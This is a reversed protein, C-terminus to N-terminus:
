PTNVELDPNFWIYYAPRHTLKGLIYRTRDLGPLMTRRNGHSKLFRQIRVEVFDEAPGDLADLTAQVAEPDILDQEEIGVAGFAETLEVHHAAVRPEFAKMGARELFPNVLPMVGLAEVIPVEMMPMTERVLRSALGIGRFRPEIIVRSILRVNHNILSLETQRDLGSFIDGTAVNRLEVRPNPMAYVIVGAPRTEATGPSGNARLSFVRKVAALRGDRYHYAALQRHDGLDGPVIELKKHVSCIHM